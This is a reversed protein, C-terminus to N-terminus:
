HAWSRVPGTPSAVKTVVEGGLVAELGVRGEFRLGRRGREVFPTFMIPGTLLQRFGKRAQAVDGTLLSRWDTLSHRVRREIDRWVPQRRGQRAELSAILDRRRRETAQLRDVLLPVDAGGAIADALRTQERKVTELDRKLQNQSDSRTSAEFQERAARVVDEVLNPTLVDGGIATLVARDIAGMPWQEVHSCVTPGRNYHSTCAYFFARRKGHARSRIHLGGGCLACRGFGPLLYKSDRDRHPRRQGHTDREYQARAANLKEHTKRWQDDSVIRLQPAPVDVWDGAPRASQKHQGWTNRKRTRNWAIVGRYLDRFLVERVSSPAWARPRGRQSRPATAGEANLQKAIRTQGIGDARLEFIRRVIAAETENIRREVHADVRVNDYGFVRGGTVHGAKAKRLMADHTRQRAKERELEDAFATLSMMIKDTPSDLTRERDELYFFVRVGAQILQKLAYATEISERGLRSEESMILVDFSPRPKLANMM